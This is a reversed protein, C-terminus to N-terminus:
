SYYTWKNEIKDTIAEVSLGNADLLQNRTGNEFIYREPLGIRLVSKNLGLDSIAELVASGLGGDLTQEELTVVERTGCLYVTLFDQNIPKIRFLDIVTAAFVGAVAVARGLMYGCSIISLPKQGRRVVRMGHEIEARAGELGTAVNRELRILRLAPKKLCLDVLPEIMELDGPAYVEIGALARMYAIDETPCHAPGSPAYGLGVGNGILTVPNGAAACSYRIQEYCRAMWCGMMYVFVKKGGGALGAAVNITNQEAIGMAIFQGPLEERWSDLAPAGMDASLLMISKDERARQQLQWIFEDRQNNHKM